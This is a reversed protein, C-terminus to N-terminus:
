GYLLRGLKDSEWIFNNKLNEFSIRVTERNDMLRRLNGSASETDTSRGYEISNQILDAVDNSMNEATEDFFSIFQSIFGEYEEHSLNYTVVYPTPQKYWCYNCTLCKFNISENIICGGLSALGMDVAEMLDPGPKGYIVPVSCVSQCNPCKEM